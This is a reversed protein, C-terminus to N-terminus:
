GFEFNSFCVLGWPVSWIGLVIISIWLFILPNENEYQLLNFLTDSCEDSCGIFEVPLIGRYYAMYDMFNRSAFSLYLRFTDVALM